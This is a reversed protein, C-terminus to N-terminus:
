GRPKLGDGFHMHFVIPEGDPDGGVAVPQPAKGWGRDLILSAASVRAAPTTKPQNMIGVLTKIAAATHKRAIQRVDKPTRAPM